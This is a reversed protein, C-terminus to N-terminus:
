NETLSVMADQITDTYPEVQRSKSTHTLYLMRKRNKVTRYTSGDSIKKKKTKPSINQAYSFASEKLGFSRTFHM